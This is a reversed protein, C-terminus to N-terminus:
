RPGWGPAESMLQQIDDDEDEDTRDTYRECTNRIVHEEATLNFAPTYGASKSFVIPDDHIGFFQKLEGRLRSIRRKLNPIRSVDDWTKDFTNVIALRFFTKWCENPKAMLSTRHRFGMADFTFTEHRDRARVRVSEPGIFTLHDRVM